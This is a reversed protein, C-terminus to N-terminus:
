SEPLCTHSAMFACIMITQYVKGAIFWIIAHSIRNLKSYEAVGLPKDLAGGRLLHDVTDKPLPV